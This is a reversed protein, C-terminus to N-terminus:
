NIQKVVAQCKPCRLRGNEKEEPYDSSLDCESVEGIWKCRHCQVLVETIKRLKKAM